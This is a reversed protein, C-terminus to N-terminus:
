DGIYSPFKRKVVDLKLRFYPFLHDMVKAFLKAKGGGLDV